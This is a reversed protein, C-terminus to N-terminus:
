ALQYRGGKRVVLGEHELEHLVAPLRMDPVAEALRHKKLPGDLLLRVVQGRIERKSGLFASQKKYSLSLRSVNGVSRKIFAGYDMVAWYWQRPEEKNLTVALLETIAKDTVNGADPFFHYIYATRINTEVFVAPQNFAYALIAGATNHGVGPLEQLKDLAAPLVADYRVVVTKASDHLYKARRNYGLGNWAALVQHLPARALSHFDPFQRIFELYKPAARSVQTQQLMLESVLIKYPDFSGNPEANRWPLGRAHKAYYDWVTETFQKLAEPTYKM